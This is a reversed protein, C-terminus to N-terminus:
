DVGASLHLLMKRSLSVESDELTGASLSLRAFRLDQVGSVVRSLIEKTDFVSELRIERPKKLDFSAILNFRAAIARAM